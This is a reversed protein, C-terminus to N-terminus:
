LGCMQQPRHWDQYQNILGQLGTYDSLAFNSLIPLVELNEGDNLSKKFGLYFFLRLLFSNLTATKGSM